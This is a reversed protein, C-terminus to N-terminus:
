LLPNTLNITNIIPVYFLGEYVKMFLGGGKQPPTTAFALYTVLIAFRRGM